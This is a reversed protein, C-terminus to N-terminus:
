SVAGAAAQELVQKLVEKLDYGDCAGVYKEVRETPITNEGIGFKGEWAKSLLKDMGEGSNAEFILPVANLYIAHQDDMKVLEAALAKGSIRQVATSFEAPAGAPNRAEHWLTNSPLAEFDANSTNALRRTMMHKFDVYLMMQM